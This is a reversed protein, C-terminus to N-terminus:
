NVNSAREKSTRVYEYSTRESGPYVPFLKKKNTYKKILLEKVVDHFGQSSNEKNGPTWEFYQRTSNVDAKM